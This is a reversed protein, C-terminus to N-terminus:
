SRRGAAGGGDYASWSAAAPTCRSPAPPRELLREDLFGWLELQLRIEPHRDGDITRALKSDRIVHGAATRILFDPEGVIECEEGDLDVVASLRGQYIAPYGESLLRLTERERERRDPIASLDAVGTSAALARLHRGRAGKGATPADGRVPRPPSRRRWSRPPLRSAPV